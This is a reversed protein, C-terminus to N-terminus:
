GPDGEAQLGQAMRRRHGHTERGEEMDKRTSGAATSDLDPHEIRQQMDQLSKEIASFRAEHTELARNVKDFRRNNREELQSLEDRTVERQNQVIM